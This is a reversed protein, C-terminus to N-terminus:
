GMPGDQNADNSLGRTVRGCDQGFPNAGPSFPTGLRSVPLNPRPALLYHCCGTWLQNLQSRPATVQNWHSGLHTATPSSALVRHSLVPLDPFPTAHDDTPLLLTQDDLYPRSCTPEKMTFYPLEQNEQRPPSQAITAHTPSMDKYNHPGLPPTLLPLTYPVSRRNMRQM